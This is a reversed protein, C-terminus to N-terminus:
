HAASHADQQPNTERSGLTYEGVRLNWGWMANRSGKKWILIEWNKRGRKAGWIRFELKEFGFVWGEIWLGWIGRVWDEFSVV